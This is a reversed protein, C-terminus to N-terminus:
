QKNREALQQIIHAVKDTKRRGGEPHLEDSLNDIWLEYMVEHAATLKVLDEIKKDRNKNQEKSEDLLKKLFYGVIVILISVFARWIWVPVLVEAIEPALTSLILGM